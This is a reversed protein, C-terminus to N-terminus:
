KRKVVCLVYDGRDFNKKLMEKTKEQGTSSVLIVAGHAGKKTWYHTQTACEWQKNHAVWGVFYLFDEDDTDREIMTLAEEYSEAHDTIKLKGIQYPKKIGDCSIISDTSFIPVQSENIFTTIDKM